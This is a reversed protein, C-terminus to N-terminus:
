VIPIAGERIWKTAVWKVGTSVPISSHLSMRDVQGQSNGYHFYVASGKKPTVSLGIRPFTTEGGAEVDNLYILVTAVRQGGKAQDVQNAPFFDFHPKYEEGAKYQLVQLGEGNEVPYNTLEAIRTEITAILETEHLQFYAGSSTRGPVEKKVGTAPDFVLSPRLKDGSYTILEDCEEESLLNDIYLVYPKEIKMLVKMQRDGVSIVKGKMDIEPQEYAYPAPGATKVPKDNVIHLLTSYAFEPEFGKKIMAQVIAEPNVGTKLTTQIWNSLENSIQTLKPM